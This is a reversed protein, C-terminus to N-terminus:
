YLDIHDVVFDEFCDMYDLLEQCYKYELHSKQLYISRLENKFEKYSKIPEHFLGSYNTVNKRCCLDKVTIYSDKIIQKPYSKQKRINFLELCLLIDIRKM